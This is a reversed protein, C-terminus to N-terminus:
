WLKQKSITLQKTTRKSRQLWISKLGKAPLRRDLKIVIFSRVGVLAMKFYAYFLSLILGIMWGDDGVCPRAWMCSPNLPVLWDLTCTKPSNSFVPTGSSVVCLCSPSCRFFSWLQLESCQKSHYLGASRQKGKQGLGWDTLTRAHIKEAEETNQSLLPETKHPCASYMQSSTSHQKYSRCLPMQVEEKWNEGFGRGAVPIEAVAGDAQGVAVM